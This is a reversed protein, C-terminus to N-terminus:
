MEEPRVAEKCVDEIHKLNCEVLSAFYDIREMAKMKRIQKDVPDSVLKRINCAFNYPYSEGCRVVVDVCRYEHLVDIHCSDKRFVYEEEGNKFYYDLVYGNETLFRFKEEVYAKPNREWLNQPRKRFFM